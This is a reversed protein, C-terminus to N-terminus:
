WRGPVGRRLGSGGPAGEPQPQPGPQAADAIGLPIGPLAFIGADHGVTPLRLPEFGQARIGDELLGILGADLAVPEGPVKTLAQHAPGTGFRGPTVMFNGDGKAHLGAWLANWAWRWSRWPRPM